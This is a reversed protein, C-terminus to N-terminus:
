ELCAELLEEPPLHTLEEPTLHLYRYTSGRNHPAENQAM